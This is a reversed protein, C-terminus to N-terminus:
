TVARCQEFCTAAHIDAHQCYQRQQSYDHICALTLGQACVVAHVGQRRGTPSFLGARAGRCVAAWRKELAVVSRLSHQPCAGHHLFPTNSLSVEYGM